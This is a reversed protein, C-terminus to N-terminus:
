MGHSWLSDSMISHGVNEYILSYIQSGMLYSLSSNLKCCKIFISINWYIIYKSIKYDTVDM